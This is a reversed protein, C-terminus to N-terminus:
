LSKVGKRFFSILKRIGVGVVIFGLMQPVFKTLGDVIPSIDVKGVATAVESVATAPTTADLLVLADLLM